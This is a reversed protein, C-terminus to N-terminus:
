AASRAGAMLKILEGGLAIADKSPLTQNSLTFGGFGADVFAQLREATEAPPAVIVMARREEPIRDLVAKADSSKEVLVALAGILLLVESPDRHVAECHEEFVRK